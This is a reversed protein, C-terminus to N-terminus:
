NNLSLDNASAFSEFSGDTYLILVKSIAKEKNKTASELLKQNKEKDDIVNLTMENKLFPEKGILLWEPNIEDFHQLIKQILDLSPKNRGSLIHSVNARQVGIQDSFKSPLLKYYALIYNIRELM